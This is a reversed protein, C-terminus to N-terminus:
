ASGIGSFRSSRGPRTLTSSTQRTSTSCSITSAGNEPSAIIFSSWRTASRPTVAASTLSPRANAPSPPLGPSPHGRDPGASGQSFAGGDQLPQPRAPEPFWLAEFEIKVFDIGYRGVKEKLLGLLKMVRPEDLIMATTTDPSSSYGTFLGAYARQRVRVEANRALLDAYRELGAHVQAAPLCLLRCLAFTSGAPLRLPVRGRGPSLNARIEGALQLGQHSLRYTIAANAAEGIGLVLTRETIRDVVATSWWETTEKQRDLRVIARPAFWYDNTIVTCRDAPAGVDLTMGAGPRVELVSLPQSTTNTLSVDLALAPEHDLVSFHATVRLGPSITRTLTVCRAPGLKDQVQSTHCEASGLAVVHTDALPMADEDRYHPTIGGEGSRRAIKQWSRGDPSVDVEIVDKSTVAQYVWRIETARTEYVIESWRDRGRPCILGGETDTRWVLNEARVYRNRPTVMTFSDRYLPDVQDPSRFELYGIYAHWDGGHQFLRFRVFRTGKPIAIPVPLVVEVKAGSIVPKGAVLLAWSGQRPDVALQCAPSSGALVVNEKATQAQTRSSTTWALVSALIVARCVIRECKSM